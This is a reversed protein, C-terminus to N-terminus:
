NQGLATRKRTLWTKEIARHTVTGMPVVQPIIMGWKDDKDEVNEFSLRRGGDEWVVMLDMILDRM